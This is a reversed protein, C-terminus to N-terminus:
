NRSIDNNKKRHINRSARNQQKNIVAKEQRTVKGDARAMRKTCRVNKQQRALQKTEKKTLEGSKVGQAIRTKQKAQRASAKPASTQAQIAFGILFLCSFLASGKLKQKIM